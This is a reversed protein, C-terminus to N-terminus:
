HLRTAWTSALNFPANSVAIFCTRYFQDRMVRVHCVPFLLVSHGPTRGHREKRILHCDQDYCVSHLVQAPITSAAQTARCSTMAAYTWIHGRLQVENSQSGHLGYNRKLQDGRGLLQNQRYNGGLLRSTLLCPHPSGESILKPRSTGRQQGTRWSRRM